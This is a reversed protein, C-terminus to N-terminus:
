RVIVEVFLGDDNVIQDIRYETAGITLTDGPQPDPVDAKPLKATTRSEMREGYQGVAVSGRGLIAWTEVPVPEDPPTYAPTYVAADGLARRFAPMGVTQMIADFRSM